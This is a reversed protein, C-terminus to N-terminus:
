NLGMRDLTRRARNALGQNSGDAIARIEEALAALNNNAAMDLATSREAVGSEALLRRTIEEMGGATTTGLIRLFGNYLATFNRRRAEDMEEVLAELHREPAAEMLVEGAAIRIRVPNMRGLFLEEVTEMAEANGIAGLARISHERVAHSEDRSARFRLYPVASVLRRDRSALAAAIRTREFSDRFADLIAADVESGSFPGLAEVAAARVHPESVSVADLVAPLGDPDGISALAQLSTVRLFQTSLADLAIASLFPVAESAGTAGLALIVEHVANSDLDRGDHVEILYEAMDSADEGGMAGGIRGLARIANNLFRREGSEVVERLDLVADRSGIRGLYDIAALVSEGHEDFRGEVALIAREELGAVQREGFFNFAVTLISHNGTGNAVAIIDEDFLDEGEERLATLLAAIETETGFRVIDRRLAETEDQALPVGAVMVALLSLLLAKRM